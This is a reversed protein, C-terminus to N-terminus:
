QLPPYRRRRFGGLCTLFGVGITFVFLSSPEPVSTEVIDTIGLSGNSYVTQFMELPGGETFAGELTLQDGAFQTLDITETTSPTLTGLYYVAAGVDGDSDGAGVVLKADFIPAILSATDYIDLAQYGGESQLTSCDQLGTAASGVNCLLVANSDQNGTEQVATTVGAVKITKALPTLGGIVTATPSALPWMLQSNDFVHELGLLHGTEHAIVQSLNTDSTTCISLVCSQFYQDGSFVVASDTKDSNSVNINRAEGGTNALQSALSAPLGDTTPTGGIYVTDYKGSTPQSTTFLVNYNKYILQVDDEINQIETNGIGSDVKKYTLSINQSPTQGDVAFIANSNQGFDLYVIQPPSPLPTGATAYTISTPIATVLGRSPNGSGYSDITIEGNPNIASNGPNAFAAATPTPLTVSFSQNLSLSPVVSGTSVTTSFSTTSTPSVTAADLLLNSAGPITPYSYIQVASQGPTPANTTTAIPVGALYATAAEDPPSSIIYYPPTGALSSPASSDFTYVETIPTGQPATLTGLSLGVVDANITVTTEQALAISVGYSGALTALSAATLIRRRNVGIALGALVASGPKPQRISSWLAGAIGQGHM